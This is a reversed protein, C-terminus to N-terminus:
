RGATQAVIGFAGKGARTFRLGQQLTDAYLRSAM